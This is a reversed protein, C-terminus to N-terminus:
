LPQEREPKPYEHGEPRVTLKTSLAAFPRNCMDCVLFILAPGMVVVHIEERRMQGLPYGCAYCRPPHNIVEPPM